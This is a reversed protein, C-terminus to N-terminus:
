VKCYCSIIIIIIIRHLDELSPETLWQVRVGEKMCENCYMEAESIILFPYDM